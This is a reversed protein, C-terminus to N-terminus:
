NATVARRGRDALLLGTAGAVGIGAGIVATLGYGGLATGVVFALAALVDGVLRLLALMSGATGPRGAMLDQFYLIPLTIGATGGLGALVPMLWLVWTEAVLPMVAMQAAYLGAGAAILVPRPVRGIIRPLLLMFPVEWGAIMAIYLAVDATSRSASADFILAILAFNLLTASSIAGFCLLRLWVHPHAVERLTQGLSIGSPADAWATQGDRPWVAVFMAALVVVAVASSVYTSMVGAGAAFAWTWFVLMATFSVSMAARVTSLIADRDREMGTTALRTLAFIQGYLSSAVPLCVGHCLVFAAPGPTLMIAAVGLSGTLVTALAIGRRNARQDSLVGLLVSTTVAVGSALVMVLGFRVETLGVRGIAILSQYPFVSAFFAGLALLGGSIGRLAPNRWILAVPTV